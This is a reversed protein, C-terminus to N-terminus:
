RTAESRAVGFEARVKAELRAAAAECRSARASAEMLASTADGSVACDEAHRALLEWAVDAHRRAREAETVLRDSSRYNM